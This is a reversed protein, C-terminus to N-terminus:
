SGVRLAAFFTSVADADPRDGIVMAQYVRPGRAFVTLHEVVATGDPRRGAVTIRAAQAHPTMGSVQAAQTEGAAASVNHAAADRLAGLAAGVDRVDDLTMAGVAYTSGSAACAHMTMEVRRQAIVVARSLTAPRCPFMAELDLGPPRVRRWDLAPTCGCLLSLLLCVSRLLVM